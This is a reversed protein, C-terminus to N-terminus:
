CACIACFRYEARLLSRTGLRRCALSRGVTATDGRVDLDMDFDDVETGDAAQVGPSPASADASAADTFAVELGALMDVLSSCAAHLDDSPLCGCFHAPAHRCHCELYEDWRSFDNQEQHQAYSGLAVGLQALLVAHPLVAKGPLTEIWSQVIHQMAEALAGTFLCM